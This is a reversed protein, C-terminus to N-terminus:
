DDFVKAVSTFVANTDQIGVQDIEKNKAWRLPKIV